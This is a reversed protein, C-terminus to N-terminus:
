YNRIPVHGIVNGPLLQLLFSTSILETNLPANLPVGNHPFETCMKSLRAFHPICHPESTQSQLCPDAPLPAKAATGNMQPANSSLQETAPIYSFSSNSPVRFFLDKSRKLYQLPMQRALSFSFAFFRQWSIHDGSQSKFEPGGLYAATM